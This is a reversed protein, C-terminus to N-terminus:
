AAQNATAIQEATILSERLLSATAAMEAAQDEDLGALIDGLPVAQQEASDDGLVHAAMSRLLDGFNETADPQACYLRLNLAIRALDLRHRTITSGAPPRRGVTEMLATHDALDAKDLLRALQQTDAVQQSTAYVVPKTPEKMSEIYDLAAEIRDLDSPDINSDRFVQQRIPSLARYRGLLKERRDPDPTEASPSSVTGDSPTAGPEIKASAAPPAVGASAPAPTPTAEVLDALDRGFSYAKRWQVTELALDAGAKGHVLNLRYLEGVEHHDDCYIVYAHELDIGDPMTTWETVQSKDGDRDIRASTHPAYAYLALQVVTSHPYKVANVGSKLDFLAPGGQYSLVADYRGVVGYDPWAVFQEVRGEIPEIGYRDLTRELVRLDEQQQDTILAHTDGLLMLEFVRHRQTGRDARAHSKAAHHADSVVKSIAERNDLDVAVREALTPDLTMGIAVQRQQWQEITYSDAAIKAVKSASKVRRGDLWYSHTSDNYTLKVGVVRRRVAGGGM